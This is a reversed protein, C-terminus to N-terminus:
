NCNSVVQGLELHNSSQKKLKEFKYEVGLVPELLLIDASEVESRFVRSRLLTLKLGALVETASSGITAGGVSTSSCLESVCFLLRGLNVLAIVSVVWIM